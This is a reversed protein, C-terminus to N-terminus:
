QGPRPREDTITTKDDGITLSERAVGLRLDFQKTGKVEEHFSRRTKETTLYTYTNKATSQHASFEENVQTTENRETIQSPLKQRPDEQRSYRFGTVLEQRQFCERNSPKARSSSEVASSTNQLVRRSTIVPNKTATGQDAVPSCYLIAPVQPMRASDLPM